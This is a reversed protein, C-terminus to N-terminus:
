PAVESTGGVCPGGPEPTTPGQRFEEVFAPLRNDDAGSLELQHAWASAVVPASMGPHPSLIIYTDPLIQRLTAIDEAPLDPRYAVWVAGHEMSHVANEDAVPEDYVGCNLWVPSHMGSVGPTQPYEVPEDTHGPPVDYVQVAALSPRNAVEIVAVLVAIIALGAIVGVGLRVLGAKRQSSLQIAM